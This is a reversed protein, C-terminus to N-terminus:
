DEFLKIERSKRKLENEAFSFIFPKPFISLVREEYDYEDGDDTGRYEWRHAEFSFKYPYANDPTYSVFTLETGNKLDFLAKNEIELQQVYFAKEGVKFVKRNENM